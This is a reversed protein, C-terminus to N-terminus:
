TVGATGRGRRSRWAWVALAALGAGLAAGALVDSLWHRDLYVRSYAVIVAFPLAALAARRWRWAIVAVVAFANAAHSSPFGANNRRHTGDPRTRNFAYKIGEVALNVPVLAIVTEAAFARGAPGALMAVVLGAALVPRAGDTALHMPRELWPRRGAQVMARVSDDLAPRALALALLLALARM